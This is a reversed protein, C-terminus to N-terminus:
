FRRHINDKIWEQVENEVWAVSRAGIQVQSPFQNNKIKLYITSKPLGTVGMVDAIRLFRNHCQNENGM